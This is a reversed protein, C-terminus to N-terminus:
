EDNMIINIDDILHESDTELIMPVNMKAFISTIRKLAKKGIYGFGINAHRDVHSGQKNKSDNVHLLKIHELGILENFNDMYASIGQKLSLDYGAAFVHCTDMCIGFRNHISKNNNKSFKRYFYALEEIKSCIESGQGAPTELLIKVSSKETLKHVHLLSTYMNNYGELLVMNKIKGMHLVIAFAGIYTAINIETILQNIWISYEDWENACNITYSAHIVCMIGTQKIHDRLPTYDLIDVTTNVFLQVVSCKMDIAKDIEKILNPIDGDIHYGIIM